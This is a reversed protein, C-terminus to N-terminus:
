RILFTGEKMKNYKCIYINLIVGEFNITRIYKPSDCGQIVNIFYLQLIDLDHLSMILEKCSLNYNLRDNVIFKISDYLVKALEKRITLDWTGIYNISHSNTSLQVEQM